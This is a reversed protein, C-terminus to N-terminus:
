WHKKNKKSLWTSKWSHSNWQKVWPSFRHSTLTNVIICLSIFHIYLVIWFLDLQSHLSISKFTGITWVLCLLRTSVFNWHTTTPQQSLYLCLFVVISSHWKPFLSTFGGGGGGSVLPSVAATALLMKIIYNKLKSNLLILGLGSNDKDSSFNWRREM